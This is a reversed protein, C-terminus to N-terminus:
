KKRYHLVSSRRYATIVDVVIEAQLGSENIIDQITRVGDVFRLVQHAYDPVNPLIEKENEDFVPINNEFEFSYEIESEEEPAELIKRVILTLLPVNATQSLLAGVIYRQHIYVFFMKKKGDVLLIKFDKKETVTEILYHINQIEFQLSGELDTEKVEGNEMVFSGIVGGATEKLKETFM